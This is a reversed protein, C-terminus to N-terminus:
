EGESVKRQQKWLLKKNVSLSKENTELVTGLIKSRGIVCHDSEKLAAGFSVGDGSSGPFIQLTIGSIVAVGLFSLSILVAIYEIGLGKKKHLQKKPRKKSRVFPKTRM